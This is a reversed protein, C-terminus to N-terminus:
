GRSGETAQLLGEGSRTLVVTIFELPQSPAVQIVVIFRGQDVSQPPNVSADTIVRFSAAPTAGAFAGRRFMGLLMSELAVRVGERFREHNTEFVFDMGRQWALKRLLIMLRRVSVQLLEHESSLTHASTAVFDRPALRVLNFNLEFLDAWDATSFDPTLGLVSQLPINAPAVWVGRQRERLAIMGCVAGDSTISRMRDPATADPVLLWPHYVAGYSLDAIDLTDDTPRGQSPLGFSARLTQQWEISQRKEFHAPLTLIGLVDARAQCLTLLAKHVPLLPSDALDYEASPQLTPLDAAQPPPLYTFAGLRTAAGNHNVVTVDVAGRAEGPPAVCVISDEGMVEVAPSERGGFFVRTPGRFSFGAGRLTVVFGGALAGTSPSLAAIELTPLECGEFPGEAPCVERQPPPPLTPPPPPPTEAPEGPWPRQAADPVAILAVPDVFLLSHLGKLRYNQVYYRDVAEAMLGAPSDSQNKPYPILYPDLFLAAQGAGFQALDDSGNTAPGVFDAERVFAAMGLPLYVANPTTGALDDAGPLPQPAFLGALSVADLRGLRAEESRRGERFAQFLEATHQALANDPDAPAVNARGASAGRAGANGATASTQRYLVSSELLNVLGWYRPQGVNFGLESLTPLRDTGWRVQLDFRLRDVRRLPGVLSGVPLPECRLRLAADAHAEAWPTVPSASPPTQDLATVPFLLNDGSSLALWLISGRGPADPGDAAVQLTLGPPTVSLAGVQIQRPEDATLRHAAAVTASPPLQTVLRWAAGLTVTAPANATAGRTVATVPCLCQSDDDLTLRLIDGPLIADPAPQARWTLTDPAIIAFADAPLPTTILRPALRVAGAWQGESSAAMAAIRPPGWNDLRVLGPIEFQAATAKAGAVRVVYCRQGGNAFFAEVATPVQAYVTRGDAERALPLDGGFVARYVGIDDVQVPFDLPGRETFGVFAAVDLPPLGRAPPAPPPLFYVGPLRLNLTTTM